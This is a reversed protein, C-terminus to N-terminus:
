GNTVEEVKYGWQLFQELSDREENPYKPDFLCQNDDMVCNWWFGGEPEVIDELWVRYQKM